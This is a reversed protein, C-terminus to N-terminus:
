RGTGDIAGKAFSLGRWAMGHWAVGEICDRDWCYCGFASLLAAIYLNGLVLSSCLMEM